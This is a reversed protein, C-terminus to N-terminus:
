RYYSQHKVDTGATELPIPHLRVFVGVAGNTQIAADSVFEVYVSDGEDLTFEKETGEAALTFDVLADATGGEITVATVLTDVAAESADYAKVAATILGGSSALAASAVWSVGVVRVPGHGVPVAFAYVRTTASATVSAVGAKEVRQVEQVSRGYVSTSSM